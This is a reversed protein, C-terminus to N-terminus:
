DEFVHIKRASEVSDLVIRHTEEAMENALAEAAEADDIDIERKLSEDHSFVHDHVVSLDLWFPKIRM